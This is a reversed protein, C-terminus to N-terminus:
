RRVTATYGNGTVPVDTASNWLANVTDAAAPIELIGALAATLILPSVFSKM